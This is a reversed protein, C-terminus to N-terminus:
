EYKDEWDEPMGYGRREWARRAADGILFATIIRQCQEVTRNNRKAIKAMEEFLHLARHDARGQRTDPM